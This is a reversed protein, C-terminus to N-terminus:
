YHYKTITDVMNKIVSGCMCRKKNQKFLRNYMDFLPTVNEGAIVKNARIIDFLAREENTMEIPERLTPFILKKEATTDKSKATTEKSTSSTKEKAVDSSKCCTAPKTTTKKAM